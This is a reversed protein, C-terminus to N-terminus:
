RQVKAGTLVDMEDAYGAENLAKLAARRGPRDPQPDPARPTELLDKIYAESLKNEQAGAIVLALYWDYPKLGAVPNCAIYTTHHLNEKRTLCHVAFQDLRNYGTGREEAADLAAMDGRDIEFIVGLTSIESGASPALTAKGSGDQSRKSFSLQHGAIRAPGILRASPCRARLRASLMNSGYAFYRITTM